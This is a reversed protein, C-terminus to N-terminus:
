AAQRDIGRKHAGGDIKTVGRKRLIQRVRERSIGEQAAIQSLTQGARYRLEMDSNRASTPYDM